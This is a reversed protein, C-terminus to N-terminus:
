AGMRHTRHNTFTPTGPRTNTPYVKNSFHQHAIFYKIKDPHPFLTRDYGGVYDPEGRTPVKNTAEHYPFSLCDEPSTQRLYPQPDGVM